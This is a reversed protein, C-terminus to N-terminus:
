AGQVWALRVQARRADGHRLANTLGEQVIRYVHVDHDAPLPPLDSPLDLLGAHAATPV